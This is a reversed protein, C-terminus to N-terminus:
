YIRCGLILIFTKLNRTYCICILYGLKPNNADHFSGGNVVEGLYKLFSILYKSKAIIKRSTLSTTKSLNMYFLVLFGSKQIILNIYFTHSIGMRKQFHFLLSTMMIRLFVLEKQVLPVKSRRKNSAM